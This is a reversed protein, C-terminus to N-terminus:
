RKKKGSKLLSTIASVAAAALGHAALDGPHKLLSMAAGGLSGIDSGLQRVNQEVSKVQDEIDTVAMDRVERVMEVNPGSVQNRAVVVFIVAIVINAVSVILAAPAQGLEFELAFYAAINLFGLAFLTAIAAVVALVLKRSTIQIQERALIGESRLLIRLNRLLAETHNM